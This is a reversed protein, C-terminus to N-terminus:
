CDTVLRRFSKMRSLLGLTFLFNSVCMRVFMDVLGGVCMCGLQTIVILEAM